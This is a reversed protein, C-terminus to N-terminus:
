DRYFIRCGFSETVPNSVAVGRLLEDVANAIFPKALQPQEGNDDISGEYRIIWQNNEKWIVYATPTHEAAFNKGVVQKADQLYPFNYADKKAKAKMKDFSEDEYVLTDMSNIGILPVNLASYKSNLENLRKSYLKAFPCHNCTFIVIFGKAKPFDALSVMKGNVNRLWFESISSGIEQSVSTLITMSAILLLAAIGIKTFKKM